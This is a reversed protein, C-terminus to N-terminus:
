WAHYVRTIKNGGSSPFGSFDPLPPLTIEDEEPMIITESVESVSSLAGTSQVESDYSISLTDFSDEFAKNTDNQEPRNVVKFPNRLRIRCCPRTLGLKNLTEEISIGESIMREYTTWKDALVKGCTVCRIPPLEDTM